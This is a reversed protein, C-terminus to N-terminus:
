SLNSYRQNKSDADQSIERNAISNIREGFSARSPPFSSQRVILRCEDMLVQKPGSAGEKNEIQNLLLHLCIEVALRDNFYISTVKMLDTLVPVESLSVLSVRRLLERKSLAQYAGICLTINTAIIATPPPDMDMLGMTKSEAAESTSECEVIYDNNISIRHEELSAMYGMCREKTNFSSHTYTVIAINRHGLKILHETATKTSAFQNFHVYNENKKMYFLLVYPINMRRLTELDSDSITGVVVVGDVQNRNILEMYALTGDTLQTTTGIFIHYGREMASKEFAKIMEGFYNLVTVPLVIALSMTRNTKLTRAASNPKYNLVDVCELIRKATEERISM